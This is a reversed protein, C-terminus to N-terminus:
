HFDDTCHLRIKSEHDHKWVDDLAIFRGLTQEVANEIGVDCVDFADPSFRGAGARQPARKPDPVTWWAGLRGQDM